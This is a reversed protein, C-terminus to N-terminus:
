QEMTQENFHADIWEQTDHHYHDPHQLRDFLASTFVLRCVEWPDDLNPKATTLENYELTLHDCSNAAPMKEIIVQHVRTNHLKSAPHSVECTLGQQDFPIGGVNKCLFAWDVKDLDIGNVIDESYAPTLLQVSLITAIIATFRIM